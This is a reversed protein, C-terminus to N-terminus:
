AGSRARRGQHTVQRFHRDWVVGPMLQARQARGLCIGCLSDRLDPRRCAHSPGLETRAAVKAIM